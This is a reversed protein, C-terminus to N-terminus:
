IKAKKSYIGLVISIGWIILTTWFLPTIGSIIVEPFFIDVGWVMAMNIILSFLGFTLIRIPTTIFKLIPKIFFNIVGFFIGAWLLDTFKGNFSAGDVFEAALWIGAIGAIIQLLLKVM